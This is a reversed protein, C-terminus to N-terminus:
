RMLEAIDTINTINGSTANGMHMAYKGLSNFGRAGFSGVWGAVPIDLFGTVVAGGSATAGLLGCTCSAGFFVKSLPNPACYFNINARGTTYLRDVRLGINGIIPINQGFSTFSSTAETGSNALADVATPFLEVM